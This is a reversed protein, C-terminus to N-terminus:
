VQVLQSHVTVLADAEVLPFFSCFITNRFSVVRWSVQWIEFLKSRHFTTFVLQRPRVFICVDQVTGNCPLITHQKLCKV